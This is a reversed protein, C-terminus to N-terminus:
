EGIKKQRYERATELFTTINEFPVTHPLDCAPMVMYGGGESASTICRLVDNKVDEETGRMLVATPSVNGALVCKGRFAEKAKKLDVMADLSICSSGATSVLDLRDSMEGCMHLLSRVGKANLESFLNKLPPLGLEEFQRRSILSTSSLSDAVSIMQIVGDNILPEYFRLIMKTTFECLAKVLEKNKFTAKMLAEIGCLQGALIFPGWTTVTVVYRKGVLKSVNRTAERINNLVPDSDIKNLDLRKLDDISGVFPQVDPAGIKRYVVKGGLAGPLCNNLGSGVYVIDSGIKEAVEIFIESMRGPNKVLKEPEEGYRHYAWVGGGFIAAPLRETEKFDFASFVIDKGTMTEKMSDEKEPSGSKGM